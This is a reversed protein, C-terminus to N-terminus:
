ANSAAQNCRFGYTPTWDFLIRGTLYAKKLQRYAGIAGLMFLISALLAPFDFNGDRDKLFAKMRTLLLAVRRM